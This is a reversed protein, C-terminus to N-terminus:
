RTGVSKVESDPRPALRSVFNESSHDNLEADVSWDSMTSEENYRALESM